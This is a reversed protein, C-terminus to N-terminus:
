FTYINTLPLFQVMIRYTRRESKGKKHERHAINALLFSHVMKKNTNGVLFIFYIIYLKIIM